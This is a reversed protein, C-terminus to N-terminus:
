PEFEPPLKSSLDMADHLLRAIEIIRTGSGDASIRYLFFHRARKGPKAIHLTRADPHLESRRRGAEPDAALTLIAQRILDEYEDHKRPGFERLTWTLVLEIDRQAHTLIRIQSAM